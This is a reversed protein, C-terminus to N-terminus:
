TNNDGRLNTRDTSYHSEEEQLLLAIDEQKTAAFRLPVLM